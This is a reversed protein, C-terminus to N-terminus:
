PVVGIHANEIIGRGDPSIAEFHVHPGRRRNTLDSTRMRFQRTGDASRFVDPGINELHITEWAILTGSAEFTISQPRYLLSIGM